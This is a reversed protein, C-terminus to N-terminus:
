SVQLQWNDNWVYLVMNKLMNDNEKRFMNSM